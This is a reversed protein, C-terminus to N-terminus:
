LAKADKGLEAVEVIEHDIVKIVNVLKFSEIPKKDSSQALLERTIGNVVVTIKGQGQAPIRQYVTGVLGVTKHLNFVSGPGQFLLATRFLLAILIMTSVGAICAIAYAHAYSLEFQQTCALGILGFMMFFGSISHLTFLKFSPVDHHTDHMEVDLSGDDVDFGGGIFAM